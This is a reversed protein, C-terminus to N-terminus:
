PVAIILPESPRSEITTHFVVTGEGDILDIEVPVRAFVFSIGTAPVHAEDLDGPELTRYRLDPHRELWGEAFNLVVRFTPAFDVDYDSRDLDLRITAAYGTAEDRATAWVRTVATSVPIEIAEGRRSGGLTWSRDDLLGHIQFGVDEPLNTPRFTITRADSAVLDVRQEPRSGIRITGFRCCGDPAGSLYWRYIGPRQFAWEFAGNADTGNSEEEGHFWRGSADQWTLEVDPIPTGSSTLVRGRVRTVRTDITIRTPGAIELSRTEKAGQGEYEIDYTGAGPLQFRTTDARLEQRSWYQPIGEPKSATIWGVTATHGNVRAAIEVEFTRPFEIDIVRAEGSVLDVTEEFWVDDLEASVTYRGAPLDVFRRGDIPVFSLDEWPDEEDEDEESRYLAVEPQSTRRGDGDMTRIEIIGGPELIVPIEDDDSPFPGVWRTPAYGDAFIVVTLEDAPGAVTIAARGLDDCRALGYRECTYEGDPVWTKTSVRAGPVPLGSRDTCVVVAHVRRELPSPDLTIPVDQTSGIAVDVEAHATVFGACEVQFRYGGAPLDHFEATQSDESLWISASFEGCEATVQSWTPGADSSSVVIRVDGGRPIEILTPADKPSELESEESYSGHHWSLQLPADPLGGISFRGLEDSETAFLGLLEFHRYEWEEFPEPLAAIHVEAVAAGSEDIVRGEIRQAPQLTLDISTPRDVSCWVEPAIPVCDPESVLLRCWGGEVGVLDFRGRDDTRVQWRDISRDDAWLPLPWVSAGSVPRGVADRVTGRVVAGHTFEFPPLVRHEGLDLKRISLTTSPSGDRFASVFLDETPLDRLRASGEADADVEAVLGSDDTFVRFHAGAAPSRDPALASLTLTNRPPADDVEVSAAVPLDNAPTISPSTEARPVPAAPSSSSRSRHAPRSNRFWVYGGLGMAGVALAAAGILLAAGWWGWRSGSM